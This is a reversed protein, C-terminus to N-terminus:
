TLTLPVPVPLTLTLTLTLTLIQTLTLTPAPTPSVKARWGRVARVLALRRFCLLSASLLGDDSRCQAAARRWTCLPRM